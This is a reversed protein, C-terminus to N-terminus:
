GLKKKWVFMNVGDGECSRQRSHGSLGCESLPANPGFGFLDCGSCGSRGFPDGKAPVLLYAVGSVTLKTTTDETM